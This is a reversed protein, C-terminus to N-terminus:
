LETNKIDWYVVRALKTLFAKAGALDTINNDLTLKM